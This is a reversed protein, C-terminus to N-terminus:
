NIIEETLLQVFAEDDKGLINQAVFQNHEGLNPARSLQLEAGVWRAAEKDILIDTDPAVPQRVTQYHNALQPDHELMDQLHEVPASAIGAGQLQEALLWKDQTKSWESVVKDLEDEHQKRAQHSRFRSDDALDPRAMVGCLAAWQQDSDVAIAIWTDLEASREDATPQTPYIGHPAYNANRNANRPPQEGTAKFQMWESGLLSLVSSLQTLHLEQGEGHLNRQRLAALLTAVLLHPSTFDPYAVGIGRPREGAFGTLMNFGSAAMLINGMSPRQAWPGRRHAGPLNLLVIDSKLSRLVDFGLGMREMADPRFNNVVVDATCILEKVLALGAEKTLDVTFSKKGANVSNYLGGMDPDPKGDPGPQSRMSDPKTTSEVRIVEAGFSALIRTGIPAALVWGFDVIRLGKLAESPDAQTMEGSHPKGSSTEPEDLEDMLSQHEGLYPARTMTVGDAMADVPSRVYGLTGFRPHDMSLFQDNVQFQEQVELDPFDLVPLCIIDATLAGAVFEDRSLAAALSLTTESVPNGQRPSDLRAFHWDDATMGHDIGVEDAWALFGDFRDPRVLLSVYKGDRCAMAASLGPRRPIRRHWQWQTPCQTQMVALATAEQMSLDIHIGGGKGAEDAFSRQHLAICIASAAALGAMTFSPNAGGQIPTGMPSGSVQILGGAAGAVLDNARWQNWPTFLGFPSVSCQILKSNYGLLAEHGLGLAELRGPPETELFVDATALLALLQQPNEDIDLVVSQKNTNFYLHGFGAEPDVVDNLFPAEHRLPQGGAPEVMIVQAGLDALVRGALTASRNALEVVRIGALANSM